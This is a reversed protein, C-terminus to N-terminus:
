FLADSDTRSMAIAPLQKVVDPYKFRFVLDTAIVM